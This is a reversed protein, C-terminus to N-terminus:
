VDEFRSVVRMMADIVNHTNCRTWFYENYVTGDYCGYTRGKIGAFGPASAGCCCDGRCCLCCTGTQGGIMSANQETMHQKFGPFIGTIQSAWMPGQYCDCRHCGGTTTTFGSKTGDYLPAFTFAIAPNIVETGGWIVPVCCACLSDRICM